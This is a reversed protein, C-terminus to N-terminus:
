DFTLRARQFAPIEAPSYVLLPYVVNDYIVSGCFGIHDGGSSQELPLGPSICPYIICPCRMWLWGNWLAKRAHVRDGSRTLRLSRKEHKSGSVCHKKPRQGKSQTLTPWGSPSHGFSNSTPSNRCLHSCRRSSVFLSIIVNCFEKRLMNGIIFIDLKFPDYPVTKSLEPAEQDRGKVGTVLKRPEERPQYTSIGFDAFYYRVGVVSRPIYTAWGSYDRKYMHNIPHFGEPYM